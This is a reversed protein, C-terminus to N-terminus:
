EAKELERRLWARAMRWDAEVTRPSVSLVAAVAEVGLGGFFRLEVIRAQRQDLGALRELCEDLALLDVETREDSPSAADLAIRQREGGRKAARRARAHDVLVRRMSTAALAIFESRESPVGSKGALRLFAEHVLATPQLTHGPREGALYRSALSRLEAMVSDSPGPPGPEPPRGPTDAAPQKPAHAM